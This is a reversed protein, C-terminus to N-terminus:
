GPAFSTDLMSRQQNVYRWTSFQEAQSGVPRRRPM